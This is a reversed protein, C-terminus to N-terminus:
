VEAVHELQAEHRAHTITPTRQAPTARRLRSELSGHRKSGRAGLLYRDYIAAGLKLPQDNEALVQPTDLRERSLERRVM